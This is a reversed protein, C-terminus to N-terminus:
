SVAVEESDGDWLDFEIDDRVQLTTDGVLRLKTQGKRREIREIKKPNDGLMVFEGERLLVAMIKRTGM